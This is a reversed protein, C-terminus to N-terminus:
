EHSLHLEVHLTKLQSLEDQCDVKEQLNKTIFAQKLNMSSLYQDLLAQKFKTKEIQFKVRKDMEKEFEVKLAKMERAKKLSVSLESLRVSDLEAEKELLDDKAKKFM